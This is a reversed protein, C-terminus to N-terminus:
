DASKTPLFREANGGLVRREHEAALGARRVDDLMREFGPEIQDRHVLLPYDSGFLVREPGAAAVASAYAEHRYLLPVAATDYVVNALTRRCYPNVEHFVLGGGLHALILRL